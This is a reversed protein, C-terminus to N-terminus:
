DRYLTGIVVVVDVMEGVVLVSWTFECAEIGYLLAYGPANEAAAAHAVKDMEGITTPEDIGVAIRLQLPLEIALGVLGECDIDELEVVVVGANLSLHDRNSDRWVAIQAHDEEIAIDRTEWFTKTVKHVSISEHLLGTTIDMTDDRFLSHLDDTLGSDSCAIASAVISGDVAEHFIGSFSLFSEASRGKAGHVGCAITLDDADM